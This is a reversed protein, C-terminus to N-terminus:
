QLHGQTNVLETVEQKIKDEIGKLLKKHEDMILDHFQNVMDDAYREGLKKEVAEKKTRM